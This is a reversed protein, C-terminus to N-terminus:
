KEGMSRSGHVWRRSNKCLFFVIFQWVTTNVAPVRTLPPTGLPFIICYMPYLIYYKKHDHGHMDKRRWRTLIAATEQQNLMKKHTPLTTHYYTNNIVVDAADIM